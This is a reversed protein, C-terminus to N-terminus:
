ARDLARQISYRHVFSGTSLATSLNHFRSACAKIVQAGAQPYCAFQAPRHGHIRPCYVWERVESFSPDLGPHINSESCSGM